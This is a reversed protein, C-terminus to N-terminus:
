EGSNFLEQSLRNVKEGMCFSWNTVRKDCSSATAMFLPQWFSVKISRDLSTCHTHTHTGLRHLFYGTFYVLSSKEPEGDAYHTICNALALLMLWEHVRIFCLSNLKWLSLWLAVNIIQLGRERERKREWEQRQSINLNRRENNKKIIRNPPFIM